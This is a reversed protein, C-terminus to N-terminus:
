EYKDWDLKYESVPLGHARAYTNRNKLTESAWRDLPFNLQRYILYSLDVTRGPRHDKIDDLEHLFRRGNAEPVLPLWEEYWVKKILAFVSDRENKIEKATALASDICNVAQKFHRDNANMEASRLYHDINKLQRHLHLNQACMAAVSHLVRWNYSQIESSRNSDILNMLEASEGGYDEKESEVLILTDWSFSQSLRSASPVPFMALVQDKVKEPKPFIGESNGLIPKRFDLPVWEWSRDYFGAQTSLLRYIKKMVGSDRHYFSTFFRNTLDDANSSVNWAMAAGTTYGLWFTEPHLGADSWGAIFVGMLLSKKENVATRIDKVMTGVRTMTDKDNVPYYNPFIPEEGQTYTYVLQRIGHM